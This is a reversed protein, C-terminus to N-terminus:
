RWKQYFTDLAQDWKNCFAKIEKEAAQYTASGNIMLDLKREEEEPPGAVSKCLSALEETMQLYLTLGEQRSSAPLATDNLLDRAFSDYRISLFRYTDSDEGNFAPSLDDAGYYIVTNQYSLFEKLDEISDVNTQIKEAMLYLNSWNSQNNIARQKELDKVRTASFYWFVTLVVCLIALAVSLIQYFKQKNM